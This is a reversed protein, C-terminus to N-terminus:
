GVALVAAILGHDVIARDFRDRTPDGLEKLLGRRRRRPEHRRSLDGPSEVDCPLPHVLVGVPQAGNTQAATRTRPEPKIRLANGVRELRAM